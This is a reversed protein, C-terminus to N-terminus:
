FYHSKCYGCFRDVYPHPECPLYDIIINADSFVESHKSRTKHAKSYMVVLLLFFNLFPLIRM